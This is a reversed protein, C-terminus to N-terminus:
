RARDGHDGLADRWERERRRDVNVFISALKEDLDRDGADIAAVDRDLSGPTRKHDRSRPASVARDVAAGTQVCLDRTTWEVADDRKRISQGALRADLHFVADDDDLERLGFSGRRLQRAAM